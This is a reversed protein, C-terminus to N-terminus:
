KKLYGSILEGEDLLQKLLTVKNKGNQISTEYCATMRAIDDPSFINLSDSAMEEEADDLPDSEDLENHEIKPVEKVLLYEQQELKDIKMIMKKEETLL